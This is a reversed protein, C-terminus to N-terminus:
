SCNRVPERQESDQSQYGPLTTNILWVVEATEVALGQAKARACLYATFEDILVPRTPASAWLLHNAYRRWRHSEFRHAMYKPRMMDVPIPPNQFIDWELGTADRGIVVPYGDRSPPAPAFMSWYQTWGLARGAETVASPFLFRTEPWGIVNRMNWGLGFLIAFIVLIKAPISLGVITPRPKLLASTLRGLGGRSNGILRYTPLGLGVWGYLTALWGLPALVPSQRMVYAVADWHLRRQGTHDVLVWSVERELLPGIEPHDQAPRLPTERPLFFERLISGVKWCFGCDRDYWIEYRRGRWYGGGLARWWAAPVFVTLSTLSALWFHGINLFVRFGVHMMMLLALTAARVRHRKDPFMLLLPALLEIWFVFWTLVFMPAAFQRFWHAFPTAFSDLHTAVYVASGTPLWIPSTKLLAGFVYVYITQAMLGVTALSVVGAGRRNEPHLAADISFVAGTPLFMAWFAMLTILTDGGQTVLPNRGVLGLCAIWCMAAAVRSRWGVIMMAGGVVGLLWLAAAFGFGDFSRLFIPYASPKHVSLVARDLVGADTYFASLDPAVVCLWWIMTGGCMIRFAALSRYDITLLQHLRSPM